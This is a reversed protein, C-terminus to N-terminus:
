KFTRLGVCHKLDLMFEDHLIADEGPLTECSEQRPGAVCLTSKGYKFLLSEKFEIVSWSNFCEWNLKVCDKNNMTAYHFVNLVSLKTLWAVIFCTMTYQVVRHYFVCLWIVTLWPKTCVSAKTLSSVTYVSIGLIDHSLSTKYDLM